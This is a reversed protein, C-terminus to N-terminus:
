AGLVIDAEGAKKSQRGLTVSTKKLVADIGGGRTSVLRAFGVRALRPDDPAIPATM